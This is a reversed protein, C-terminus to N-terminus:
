LCVEEVGGPVATIRGRERTVQGPKSCDSRVSGQM